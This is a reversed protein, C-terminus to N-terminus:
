EEGGASGLKVQLEEEQILLENKLPAYKQSEAKINNFLVGDRRETYFLVTSDKASWFIHMDEESSSDLMQSNPNEGFESELESVIKKINGEGKYNIEVLKNEIFYYNFVGASFASKNCVDSGLLPLDFGDVNDPVYLDRQDFEIVVEKLSKGYLNKEFDCAWIGKLPFTFLCLLAIFFRSM